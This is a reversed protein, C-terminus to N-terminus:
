GNDSIYIYIYIYAYIHTIIQNVGAGGGRLTGGFVCCADCGHHVPEAHRYFLSLVADLDLLRPLGTTVLTLDGVEVVVGLLLPGHWNRVLVESSLTQRPSSAYSAIVCAFRHRVRLSSARSAIVCAFRHRVRLSSAYSAIVEDNTIVYHRLSTTHLLTATVVAIM